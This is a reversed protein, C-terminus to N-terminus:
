LLLCPCGSNGAKKRPPTPPSPPLEQEQYKRVARVLQEFAEDVNLRLKASAEFYAIHRSACFASAESRPVQRHTELDAKNGVLVIPFDDRDKVRLIQTHLKGVENFSQRDNIAYVLLFGHGARMYQERMAGFEEQGATDLIDLRAPVGDVSCLKTYSDEITPDYDSVFYSQIFQITLASKGVGGGGVVVLKHTEGAPAPTSASLTAGPRGRGRGLGAGTGAAAAAAVGSMDGAAAAGGGSGGGSGGGRPGPLHGARGPRPPAM